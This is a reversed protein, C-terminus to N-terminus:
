AITNTTPSAQETTIENLAPLICPDCAPGYYIFTGNIVQIRTTGHKHLLQAKSEPTHNQPKRSGYAPEIWQYPAHQPCLPAPHNFQKLARTVYGPISIDVYGEDYHWDLALGCYLKGTWDVTLDNHANVTNILHMTDPLLPFYKVGFENVCLAFTTRKTRHRWLGPTFPMPGYGVPALKQVLQNFAFVGAEKLGYM